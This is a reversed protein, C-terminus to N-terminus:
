SAPAKHGTSGRGNKSGLGTVWKWARALNPKPFEKNRSRQRLLLLGLLALVINMTWAGLFAPMRMGQGLALFLNTFVLM